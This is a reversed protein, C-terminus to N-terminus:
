LRLGGLVLIVTEGTMRVCPFQYLDCPLNRFGVFIFRPCGGFGFPFPSASFYLRQSRVFLEENVAFNGFIFVMTLKGAMLAMTSIGVLRVPTLGM